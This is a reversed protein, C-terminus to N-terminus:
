YGDAPLSWLFLFLHVPSGFLATRGNRLLFPRAQCSGVGGVLVAALLKCGWGVLVVVIAEYGWQGGGACVCTVLMGPETSDEEAHEFYVLLISTSADLPEAAPFSTSHPTAHPPPPSPGASWGCSRAADGSCAHAAPQRHLCCCGCCRLRAALQSATQWPPHGLLLPLLCRVGTLRALTPVWSGVMPQPLLDASHVLRCPHAANLQTGSGADNM